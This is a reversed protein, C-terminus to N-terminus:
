YKRTVTANDEPELKKSAHGALKGEGGTTPDGPPIDESVFHRVQLGFNFHAPHRAGKEWVGRGFGWTLTTVHYIRSGNIGRKKGNNQDRLGMKGM